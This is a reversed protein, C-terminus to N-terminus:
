LQLLTEIAFQYETNVTLRHLPHNLSIYKLAQAMTNTRYNESLYIYM